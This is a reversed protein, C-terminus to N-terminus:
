PRACRGRSTGAHIHVHKGSAEIWEIERVPQLFSRGDGRIVIHDRYRSGATIQELMTLIRRSTDGRDGRVLRERAHRLADSLREEDFPKLLYDLAHVEFARVAYRDYATVFIVAPLAGADLAELVQFGNHEPMQIDLFVLDPRVGSLGEIAQRGDEYEAVVSIDREQALM